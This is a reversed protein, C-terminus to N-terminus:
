RNWRLRWIDAAAASSVMIAAIPIAVFVGHVRVSRTNVNTIHVTIITPMIAGDTAGTSSRVAFAGRDARRTRGGATSNPAPYKSTQVPKLAIAVSACHARCSAVSNDGAIAADLGRTAPAM